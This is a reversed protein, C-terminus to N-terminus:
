RTNVPVLRAPIIDATLDAAVTTNGSGDWAVIVFGAVGKRGAITRAESILTESVRHQDRKWATNKHVHLDIPKTM